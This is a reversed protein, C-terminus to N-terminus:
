PRESDREREREGERHRDIKERKTEKHTTKQKGVKGRM